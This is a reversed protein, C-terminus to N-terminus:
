IPMCVNVCVCACMCVCACVCACIRVCVFMCGCACMCVCVVACMCACMRLCESMCVYLVDHMCVCMWEFESSLLLEKLRRNRKLTTGLAIAGANDVAVGLFDFIARLGVCVCVLLWLGM